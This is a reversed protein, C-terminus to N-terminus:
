RHQHDISPGADEDDTMIAHVSSVILHTKDLDHHNQTERLTVVWHHLGRKQVPLIPDMIDTAFKNLASV